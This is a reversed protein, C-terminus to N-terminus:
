LKVIDLEVMGSPDDSEVYIEFFGFSKILEKGDVGKLRTTNHKSITIDLFAMNSDTEYLVKTQDIDSSISTMIIIKDSMNETDTIPNSSLLIRKVGFAMGSIIINGSFDPTGYDQFVEQIKSTINISENYPLQIIKPNGDDEIGLLEELTKKEGYGYEDSWFEIKNLNPLFVVKTGVEEDESTSGIIVNGEHDSRIISKPEEDFVWYGDSTYTKEPNNFIANSHFFHESFLRSRFVWDQIIEQKVINTLQGTIESVPKIYDKYEEERYITPKYQLFNDFNNDEIYLRFPTGDPKIFADDAIMGHRIEMDLIISYNDPAHFSFAKSGITRLNKFRRLDLRNDTDFLFTQGMDNRFANENITDTRLPIVALSLNYKGMFLGGPIEINFPYLIYNMVSTDEFGNVRPQFHPPVIILDSHATDYNLYDDPMPYQSTDLGNEHYKKEIEKMKKWAYAFSEPSPTIEYENNTLNSCYVFYPLSASDVYGGEMLLTSVGEFTPYMEDNYVKLFKEKNM